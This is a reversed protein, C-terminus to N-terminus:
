KRMVGRRLRSTKSGRGMPDESPRQLMFGPDDDEADAQSDLSMAIFGNMEDSIINIANSEDTADVIAQMANFLDELLRQPINQETLIRAKEEKIIRRLQRKTIKMNTSRDGHSVEGHQPLLQKRPV